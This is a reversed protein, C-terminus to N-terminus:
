NAGPPIPAGGPPVTPAGDSGRMGGDAGPLMGQAAQMVGAGGAPNNAQMLLMSAQMQRQQTYPDLQQVNPDMVPNAGIYAEYDAIGLADLRRSLAHWIFPWLGAQEFMPKQPLFQASLMLAEQTAQMTLMQDAQTTMGRPTFRIMSWAEASTTYALTGHMIQRMEAGMGNSLVPRAIYKWYLRKVYEGLRTLDARLVKLMQQEKASVSAMAYRHETASRYTSMPQVTITALNAVQELRNLIAEIQMPPPQFYIPKLADGAGRKPIVDGPVPRVAGGGAADRRKNLWEMALTNTQVEWVPATALKAAELYATMLMDGTWQLDKMVNPFSPAYITTQGRQHRLPLFPFGDDWPEAALVTWSSREVFVRWMRSPEWTRANLSLTSDPRPKPRYKIYAELIQVKRSEDSLISDADPLGQQARETGGGDLRDGAHYAGLRRVANMSFTGMLAQDRVWGLTETYQHAIMTCQQVDRVNHPSLFLDRPDVAEVDLRPSGDDGIITTPKFFGITGVLSSRLAVDLANSFECRDLEEGLAAQAHIGVTGDQGEGVEAQYFPYVDLAAYLSGHAQDVRARTTPLTVGQQDSLLLEDPEYARLNYIDWGEKIREMHELRDTESALMESQVALLLGKVTRPEPLAPDTPAPEGGAEDVPVGEARLHAVHALDADAFTM